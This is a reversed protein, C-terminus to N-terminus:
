KLAIFTATCSHYFNKNLKNGKKRLTIYVLCFFTFHIYVLRYFRKFYTCSCFVFIMPPMTSMVWYYSPPCNEGLKQPLNYYVKRALSIYPKVMSFRIRVPSYLTYDITTGAAVFDDTPRFTATTSYTLSVQWM